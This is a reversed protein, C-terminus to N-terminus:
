QRLRATSGFNKPDSANKLPTAHGNLYAKELLSPAPVPLSPLSMSKIARVYALKKYLRNIMEDLGERIALQKELYELTVVDGLEVLELAAGLDTHAMENARKRAVELEEPSPNPHPEVLPEEYLYRVRPVLQSHISSHRARARQALDYTPLNKRRWELRVIEDGIDVELPGTFAIESFMQKKFKRFKAPSETPLLGIGSYIGHKLASPVRNTRKGM